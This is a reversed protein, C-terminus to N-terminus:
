TADVVTFTQTFSQASIPTINTGSVLHLRYYVQGLGDPILVFDCDDTAEGLQASNHDGLDAMAPLSVYGIYDEVNAYAQALAANDGALATDPASVNYFHVRVIPDFATTINTDCRMYRLRVPKGTIAGVKVARLVTTGTDSTTEAIVDGATYATTNAPRTFTDQVTRAYWGSM